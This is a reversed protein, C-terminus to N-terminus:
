RLSWGSILYGLTGWGASKPISLMVVIRYHELTNAFQYYPLDPSRQSCGRPNFLGLHALRRLVRAVLVVVTKQQPEVLEQVPQSCMIVATWISFEGPQAEQPIINLADCGIPIRSLYVVWVLHGIIWDFENICDTHHM